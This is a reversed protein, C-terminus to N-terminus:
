GIDILDEVIEATKLMESKIKEKSEILSKSHKDIPMDKLAIDIQDILSKYKWSLKSLSIIQNAYKM